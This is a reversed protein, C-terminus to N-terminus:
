IHTSAAVRGIWIVQQHGSVNYLQQTQQRRLKGSANTQAFQHSIMAVGGRIGEEILLQQDINTLLDLDRDTM